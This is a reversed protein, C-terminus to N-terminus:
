QDQELSIVNVRTDIIRLPAVFARTNGQNDTYTVIWETSPVAGPTPERRHYFFGFLLDDGSGSLKGLPPTTEPGSDRNLSVLNEDAPLSSEPPYRTICTFKGPNNFDAMDVYGDVNDMARFTFRCRTDEPIPIFSAPSYPPATDPGVDPLLLDLFYERDAKLLNVEWAQTVPDVTDPSADGDPDNAIDPANRIFQPQIYQDKSQGEFKVVNNYVFSIFMKGPSDASLETHEIKGDPSTIDVINAPYTDRIAQTIYEPRAQAAYASGDMAWPYVKSRNNIDPRSGSSAAGAPAWNGYSMLHSFSGGESGFTHVDVQLEPADNDKLEIVASAYSVGQAAMAEDIEAPTSDIGVSQTFDVNATINGDGSQTNGRFTKGEKDANPVAPEPLSSDPPSLMVKAGNGCADVASVWVTIDAECHEPAYADANMQWRDAPMTYTVSSYSNLPDSPDTLVPKAADDTALWEKLNCYTDTSTGPEVMPIDAWFYSNNVDAPQVGAGTKAYHYAIRADFKGSGKKNKIEGGDPRSPIGSGWLLGFDESGQTLGPSMFPNNDVLKVIVPNSFYDGTTAGSSSDGGSNPIEITVVPATKDHVIVNIFREVLVQDAYDTYTFAQALTELVNNGAAPAALPDANVNDIASQLVAPNAPDYERVTGRMTVKVRYSNVLNGYCATSGTGYLAAGTNRSPKGVSPTKYIHFHRLGYYKQGDPVDSNQIVPQSPILGPNNTDTLSTFYFLAVPSGNPVYKEWGSSAGTWRLDSNAASINNELIKTSNGANVLNGSPESVNFQFEIPAQGSYTQLYKYDAESITSNTGWDKRILIQVPNISDPTDAPYTAGGATNAPPVPGNQPLPIFEPNQGPLNDWLSGASGTTSIVKAGDENYYNWEFVVTGPLVGSFLDHMKAAADDYNIKETGATNGALDLSTRETDKKTRPGTYDPVAGDERLFALADWVTQAAGAASVWEDINMTYKVAAVSQFEIVEDEDTEICDSATKDDDPNPNFPGKKFSSDSTSHPNRAFLVMNAWAGSDPTKAGVYVRRKAVVWGQKNNSGEPYMINDGHSDPSAQSLVAMYKNLGTQGDDFNGYNNLIVGGGTDFEPYDAMNLYDDREPVYQNPDKMFEPGIKSAKYNYVLVKAQCFVEYIGAGRMKFPGGVSNPGDQYRNEGLRLEYGLQNISYWGDVSGKAESEPTNSMYGMIDYGYILLPPNLAVMEQDPPATTGSEAASPAHTMYVAWRWARTDHRPCPGSSSKWPGDTNATGPAQGGNLSDGVVNSAWGGIFGNGNTDCDGHTTWSLDDYNWWNYHYANLHANGSAMYPAVKYLIDTNSSNMIDVPGGWVADNAMPKTFDYETEWNEAQWVLGSSVNGGDEALDEVTIVDVNQATSHPVLMNDTPGLIDIQNKGNIPPTAGVVTALAVHIQSMNVDGGTTAAQIDIINQSNVVSPPNAPDNVKSCVVTGTSQIFGSAVGQDLQPQQTRMDVHHLDITAARKLAVDVTYNGNSDTAFNSIELTNFAPEDSIKWPNNAGQTNKTTFYLQGMGDAAIADVMTMDINPGLDVTGLDTRTNGDFDIKRIQGGADDPDKIYCIGGQGDFQDGVAFSKSSSLYLWDDTLSKTACGISNVTNEFDGNCDVDIAWPQSMLDVNEWGSGNVPDLIQILSDGAPRYAAYKYVKGSPGVVIQYPNRAVPPTFQPNGGNVDYCSDACQPYVWECANFGYQKFLIAGDVEGGPLADKLYDPPLTTDEQSQKSHKELLVNLFIPWYQRRRVVAYNNRGAVTSHKSHWWTGNPIATPQQWPATGVLQGYPEPQGGATDGNTSGGDMGSDDAMSVSQYTHPYCIGCPPGDAAGSPSFSPHEGLHATHTSYSHEDGDWAHWSAEPDCDVLAFCAKEFPNIMMLNQNNPANGYNCAGNGWDFAANYDSVDVQAAPLFLKGVNCSYIINFSTGESSLQLLIEFPDLQASTVINGAVSIGGISGMSSFAQGESLDIIPVGYLINQSHAPSGDTTVKYNFGDSSFTYDTKYNIYLNESADVSIGYADLRSPVVLTQDPKSVDVVRKQLPDTYARSKDIILMFSKAYNESAQGQAYLQNFFTNISFFIFLYFILLLLCKSTRNFNKRHRSM